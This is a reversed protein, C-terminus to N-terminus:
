GKARVFVPETSLDPPDITVRYIEANNIWPEETALHIDHLGQWVYGHSIVLVEHGQMDGLRQVLSELRAHFAPLPEGGEGIAGSLLRDRVELFPVGEWAGYDREKLGEEEMFVHEQLRLQDRLLEASQRARVTPSFLIVDPRVGKVFLGHAADLIQQRGADTLKSTCSAGSCLGKKNATTEGHRMFLFNM